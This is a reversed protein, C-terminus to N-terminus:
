FSTPPSWFPLPSCELHKWYYLYLSGHRLPKTELLCQQFLTPRLFLGESMPLIGKRSLPQSGKAEEKSKESEQKHATSCAQGVSAAAM